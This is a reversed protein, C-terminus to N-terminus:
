SAVRSPARYPESGNGNNKAVIAAEGCQPCFKGTRPNGCSRCKGADLSCLAMAKDTADALIKAAETKAEDLVAAAKARTSKRTFFAITLLGSVVVASVILVCGAAGPGDIQEPYNSVLAVLSAIGLGLEVAIVSFMVLIRTAM